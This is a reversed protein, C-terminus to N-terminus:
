TFKTKINKESDLCEMKGNSCKKCKNCKKQRTLFSITLILVKMVKECNFGSASDNKTKFFSFFTILQYFRVKQHSKSDALIIIDFWVKTM